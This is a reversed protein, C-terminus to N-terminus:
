CDWCCMTCRVLGNENCDPCRRFEWVGDREYYDEEEEEDEEDGYEGVYLKRSGSCTVCPVFRMDDCYQCKEVLEGLKRTTPLRVDKLAQNLEDTEHMAQIEEFGGLYKGAVFLRPLSCGGFGPGLIETLEDKYGSHMSVDREDLRVEYGRLILQATTCNEYTKRIGRLSTFYFVAKDKGGPPCKYRMKRAIAIRADIKKQFAQTREKVLSMMRLPMAKEPNLITTSKQGTIDDEEGVDDHLTTTAVNFSFSRPVNDSRCAPIIDELGAMLEAVDIVEPPNDISSTGTPTTQIKKEIMDSWIKADTVYSALNSGRGDGGDEGRVKNGGGGDGGGGGDDHDKGDEDVDEDDDDIDIYNEINFIKRVADDTERRSIDSVTFPVIHYDSESGYFRRYHSPFSQCQLDDRAQKSSQCGMM